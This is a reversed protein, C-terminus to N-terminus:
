WYYNHVCVADGFMLAIYRSYCLELYVSKNYLKIFKLSQGVSSVYLSAVKSITFIGNTFTLAGNAGLNKNSM